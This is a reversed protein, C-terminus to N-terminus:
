YAPRSSPFFPSATRWARDMRASPAGLFDRVVAIQAASMLAPAHGCDPIEVLTAEPKVQRMTRAVARPFVESREGRILLVPCKVKYWADWFFLGPAMPLPEVLRAIQPDYHLRFGGEVPRAGHRALHRWQADTLAGWERHTRRLHREIEALSAFRAPARLNRAIHRLADMPLFAGVDNMVLRRIPSGPSSALLMGLLGGMSTGVWDVQAVGLRAILANLDALFQGFHYELPSGLWDSEGRGAVDPCVVRAEAALGRALADFDRANGSYGHVCLM